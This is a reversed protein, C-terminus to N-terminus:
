NKTCSEFNLYYFNNKVKIQYGLLLNNLWIYKIIFQHDLIYMSFYMEFSQTM